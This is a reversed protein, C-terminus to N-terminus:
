ARIYQLYDDEALEPGEFLALLSQHRVALIGLGAGNGKQLGTLFPELREREELTSRTAAKLVTDFDPNVSKNEADIFTEPLNDRNEFLVPKLPESPTPLSERMLCFTAIILEFGLKVGSQLESARKSSEPSSPDVMNFATFASLGVWNVTDWVDLSNTFLQDLTKLTLRSVFKADSTLGLIRTLDEGDLAEPRLGIQITEM